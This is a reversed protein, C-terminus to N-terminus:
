TAGDPFAPEVLLFVALLAPDRVRALLFVVDHEREDIGVLLVNDFVLQKYKM